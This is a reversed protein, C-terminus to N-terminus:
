QLMNDYCSCAPKRIWRGKFLFLSFCWRIITAEKHIRKERSFGRTSLCDVPSNTQVVREFGGERMARGVVPVIDFIYPNAESRRLWAPQFLGGSQKWAGAKSDVKRRVFFL